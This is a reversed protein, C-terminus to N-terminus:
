WCQGGVPPRSRDPLAEWCCVISFGITSAVWRSWIRSSRKASARLSARSFDVAIVVRAPLTTLQPRVALVPAGGITMVERVTDNGIARSMTTHRNLGMVILDARHAQAADVVERGVAGVAIEFPWTAAADSDLHLVPRMEGIQKALAQPNRLEDELQAVVVATEPVSPGIEIVYIVSPKAKRGKQLAEAM